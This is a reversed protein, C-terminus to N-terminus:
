DAMPCAHPPFAVMLARCAETRKIANPMSSAGKLWERRSRNDIRGTEFAKGEDLRGCDSYFQRADVSRAGDAFPSGSLSVEIKGLTSTIRVDPEKGIKFSVGLPRGDNADTQTDFAFENPPFTARCEDFYPVVVLEFARKVAEEEEVKAADARKEELAVKAAENESAKAAAKAKFKEALEKPEM